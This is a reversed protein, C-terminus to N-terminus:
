TARRESDLVETAIRVCSACIRVGPGTVLHGATAQPRGCFSCGAAQARHQWWRHRRARPNFTVYCALERKIAAIDTGLHNLVRRARSGPDCILMALLHETGVMGRESQGDASTTAANHAAAELACTAEASMPPTTTMPATPPGFLRHAAERVAPATVGLRELIAAAVGEALLGALLHHTGVETSGDAEAEREAKALCARLRPRLQPDSSRTSTSTRGAFRQRAAQKSVGLRNGIETWSRGDDRARAVFLDLLRDARAMMDASTVVAADLRSLADEGAASQRVQAVLEDLGHGDAGADAEAEAM